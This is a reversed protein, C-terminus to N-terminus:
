EDWRIWKEAADTGFTLRYNKLLELPDNGERFHYTQRCRLYVKIAKDAGIYFAKGRNAFPDKMSFLEYFSNATMHARGIGARLWNLEGPHKFGPMLWITMQNAAVRSPLETVQQTDLIHFLNWQRTERLADAYADSFYGKIRDSQSETATKVLSYEAEPFHCLVRRKKTISECADKIASFLLYNVCTSLTSDATSSSMYKNCFVHLHSTRDKKPQNAPNTVIDNFNRFVKVEETIHEGTKKDILEVTSEKSIIGSDELIILKEYPRSMHTLQEQHEIYKQLIALSFNEKDKENFIKGRAEMLAKNTALSEISTMGVARPIHDGMTSEIFIRPHFRYFKVVGWEMLERILPDIYSFTTAPLWLHFRERPLCDPRIPFDGTRPNPFFQGNTMLGGDQPLLFGLSDLKRDSIVINTDHAWLSTELIANRWFTKGSGTPSYIGM